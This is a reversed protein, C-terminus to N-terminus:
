RISPPLLHANKQDTAGRDDATRRLVQQDTVAHNGFHAAPQGGGARGDHVRGPQDDQGAEDVQVGVQALRPAFIRLRDLGAGPGRRGAPVRRHAGHGVGVRDGVGRAHDFLDPPEAPLGPQHVYLRDARHGDPQGPFPEGLQARHGVRGGPYPDEGVVAVADGVRPQHAPRQLVHLREVPHDRLV